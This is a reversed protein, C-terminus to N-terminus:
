FINPFSLFTEARWEKELLKDENGGAKLKISFGLMISCYNKDCEKLKGPEEDKAVVLFCPKRNTVIVLHILLHCAWLRYGPKLGSGAAKPSAKWMQSEALQVTENGLGAFVEPGLEWGPAM